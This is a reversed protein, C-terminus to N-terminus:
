TVWVYVYKPAVFINSSSLVLDLSGGIHEIASLPLTLPSYVLVKLVKLAKLAALARMAKLAKLAKLAELATTRGLATMLGLAITLGLATTLGVCVCVQSSRHCKVLSAHSRTVWRHALDCVISAHPSLSGISDIGDVSEISVISGGSVIRKISELAVQTCRTLAVHM